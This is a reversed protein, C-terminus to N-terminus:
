DEDVKEEKGREVFERWLDGSHGIKTLYNEVESLSVGAKALMVNHGWLRCILAFLVNYWPKNWICVIGCASPTTRLVKVFESIKM